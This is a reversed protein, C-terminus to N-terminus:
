ICYTKDWSAPRTCKGQGPAAAAGGGSLRPRRCANTSATTRKQSLLASLAPMAHDVMRPRRMDAGADGTRASGGTRRAHPSGDGTAHEGGQKGGQAAPQLCRARTQARRQTVLARSLRAAVTPRPLPAVARAVRQDLQRAAVGRYSGRWAREAHVWAILQTRRDAPGCSPQPACCSTLHLGGQLTGMYRQQRLAGASVRCTRRPASCPSQRAHASGARRTAQPCQRAGRCAWGPARPGAPAQWGRDCGGGARPEQARACALHPPGSRPCGGWPRQGERM